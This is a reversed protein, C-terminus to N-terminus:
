LEGAGEGVRLSMTSSSQNNGIKGGVVLTTTVGGVGKASVENNGFEEVVEFSTVLEVGEGEKPSVSLGFEGEIGDDGRSESGGLVRCGTNRAESFTAAGEDDGPNGSSKPLPCRLFSGETSSM